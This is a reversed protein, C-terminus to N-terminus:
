QQSIIFDKSDPIVYIANKLYKYIVKEKAINYKHKKICRRCAHIIITKDMYEKTMFSSGVHNCYYCPKIWGFLPFSENEYYDFIYARWLNSYYCNGTNRGHYYPDSM